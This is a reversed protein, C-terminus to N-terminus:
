NKIHLSLFITMEVERTMQGTYVNTCFFLIKTYAHIHTYYTYVGTSVDYPVFFFVVTM